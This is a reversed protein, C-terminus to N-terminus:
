RIRGAKKDAEYQRGMEADIQQSLTLNSKGKVVDPTLSPTISENTAADMKARAQPQSPQAPQSDEVPAQVEQPSPQNNAVSQGTKQAYGAMTLDMFERFSLAGPKYLGKEENIPTLTNRYATLIKDRTEPNADLFRGYKATAYKDDLEMQIANRAVVNAENQANQQITQAENNLSQITQIAEADSFVNGTANNIRGGNGDAGTLEEVSWRQNTDPNLLLSALQENIQQSNDALYDEAIQNQHQNLEFANEATFQDPVYEDIGIEEQEPQANDKAPEAAPEDTPESVPQTPETQPTDDTQGQSAEYAEGLAADIAEADFTPNEDM